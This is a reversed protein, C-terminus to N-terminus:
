ILWARKRIAKIVDCATFGIGTPDAETSLQVFFRGAEVM